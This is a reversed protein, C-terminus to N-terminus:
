VGSCNPSSRAAPVRRRRERGARLHQREARAADGRASGPRRSGPGRRPHRRHRALAATGARAARHLVHLRQRVRRRRLGLCSQFRRPRGPAREPVDRHVRARGDASRRGRGHPPPRSAAPTRPNGRRRRGVAGAAPDPGSGESGSVRGGRDAPRAAPGEAAQSTGPQRVAQQRRERPDRLHQAGGGARERLDEAPTMGDGILLGAIRESDHENMQCGFTRILFGGTM